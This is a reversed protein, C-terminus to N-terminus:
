CPRALQQATRLKVKRIHQSCVPIVKIAIACRESPTSPVDDSNYPDYEREHEDGHASNREGGGSWTVQTLNSKIVSIDMQEIDRWGGPESIPSSRGDEDGDGYGTMQLPKLNPLVPWNIPSFPPVVLVNIESDRLQLSPIRSTSARNRGWSKSFNHVVVGPASYHIAVEARERVHHLKEVAKRSPEQLIVQIERTGKMKPGRRVQKAAQDRVTLLAALSESTGTNLWTITEDRGRDQPVFPITAHGLHSNSSCQHRSFARPSYTAVSTGEPSLRRFSGEVPASIQKKFGPKSGSKDSVFLRKIREM